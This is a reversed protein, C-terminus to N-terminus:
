LKNQMDRVSAELEEVTALRRETDEKQKQEQRKEQQIQVKSKRRKSVSKM